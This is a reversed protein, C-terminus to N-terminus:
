DGKCKKALGKGKGPHVAFVPHQKCNTAKQEAEVKVEVKPQQNEVKVETKGDEIKIETKTGDAAKIAVTAKDGEIKIEVKAAAQVVELKIKLQTAVASVSKADTYIAVVESLPKGSEKAMADLVILVRPALEAQTQAAEALQRAMEVLADNPALSDKEAAFEVTVDTAAAEFRPKEEAPAAVMIRALALKLNTENYTLQSQLNDLQKGAEVATALAEQAQHFKQQSEELAGAALDTKGAEMMQTAELLRTEGQETLIHARDAADRTILYRLREVFLKLGYFASDPPISVEPLSTVTEVAPTTETAPVLATEALAPVANGVLAAALALTAILRKM